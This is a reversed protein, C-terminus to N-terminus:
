ALTAALVGTRRGGEGEGPVGDRSALAKPSSGARPGPCRAGLDSGDASGPSTSIASSFLRRSSSTSGYPRIRQRNGPGPARPRPWLDPGGSSANTEGSPRDITAVWSSSWVIETISMAVPRM